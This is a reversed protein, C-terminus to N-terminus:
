RDGCMVGGAELPFCLYSSLEARAVRKVLVIYMMMMMDWVFAMGM